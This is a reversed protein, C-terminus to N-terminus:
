RRAVGSIGHGLDQKDDFFRVFTPVGRV